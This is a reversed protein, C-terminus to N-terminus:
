EKGERLDKLHGEVNTIIDGAFTASDELSGRHDHYVNMLDTLDKEVTHM